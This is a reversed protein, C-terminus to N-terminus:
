NTTHAAELERNRNWTRTVLVEDVLTIVGCRLPAFRNFHALALCAKFSGRFVDSTFTM